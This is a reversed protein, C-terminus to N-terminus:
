AAVEPQDAAQLFKSLAADALTMDQELSQIERGLIKEFKSKREVFRERASIMNEVVDKRFGRARGDKSEVLELARDRFSEVDESCNEIFKQELYARQGEDNVCPVRHVDARGYISTLMAIVQGVFERGDIDVVQGDKSRYRNAKPMFYVAGANGRMNEAGIDEVYHRLVTRLKHGPIKTANKEVHERIGDEISKVEDGAGPLREFKLTGDKKNWTVRLAKPHDIKRNKQDWVHRTIQYVVEDATHLVAEARIEVIEGNVTRREALRCAEQFVHESRRVKPLREVDLGCDKWAKRVRALSQMADPISYWFYEGALMDETIDGGPTVAVLNKKTAM